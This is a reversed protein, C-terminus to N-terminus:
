RRFNNTKGLNILDCVAINGLRDTQMNAHNLKVCRDRNVVVFVVIVKIIINTVVFVAHLGKRMNARNLANQRLNEEASQCKLV